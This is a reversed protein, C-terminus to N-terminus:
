GGVFMKFIGMCCKLFILEQFDSVQFIVIDVLVKSFRYLEMINELKLFGNYQVDYKICDYIDFIKSIDYRGNKIKFDKELKFWRRLM